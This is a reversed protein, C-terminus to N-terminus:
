YNWLFTCGCVFNTDDSGLSAVAKDGCTAMIFMNAVVYPSDTLEVGFRSYSSGVPGMLYPVVYMTRGKMCGKMLDSLKAKLEEPDAWHNTPGADEQSKSCIYTRGEVRAVDSADSTAWFSNPYKDPNLQTFQGEKVLLQNIEDAMQDSGDFYVVDSPQYQEKAKDIFEKLKLNTINM